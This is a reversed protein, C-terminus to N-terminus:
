AQRWRAAIVIFCFAAVRTVWRAARHPSPNVLAANITAIAAFYSYPAPMVHDM